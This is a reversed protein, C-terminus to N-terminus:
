FHIMVITMLSFYHPSRFERQSFPTQNQVTKSFLFPKIRDDILSKTWYIIILIPINFIKWNSIFFFKTQCSSVLNPMKYWTMLKPINKKIVKPMKDLLWKRCYQQEGMESIWGLRFWLSAGWFLLFINKLVLQPPETRSLSYLLIRLQFFRYSWDGEAGQTLTCFFCKPSGRLQQTECYFCQYLNIFLDNFFILSLSLPLSSSLSLSLCLSLSM